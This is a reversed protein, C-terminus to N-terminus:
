IGTGLNHRRSVCSKDSESSRKPLSQCQSKLSCTLKLFQSPFGASPGKTRFYVNEPTLSRSTCHIGEMSSIKQPQHSQYFLRSMLLSSAPHRRGRRRLPRIQYCRKVAVTMIAIKLKGNLNLDQCASSRRHLSSPQGSLLELLAPPTM